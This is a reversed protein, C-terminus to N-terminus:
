KDLEVLKNKMDQIEKEQSSIIDQQLKILDPDTLKAQKAMLIASAHHPIMSKAFQRDSVATQFRILLFFGILALASLAIIIGNRRKDTYMASMVLLEIIIMPTTMLGAMYFQNVNPVVNAFTDVMSYMLVYMSAFSLLIMIVLKGYHQQGHQMSQGPHHQAHQTPM